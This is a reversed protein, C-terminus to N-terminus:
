ANRTKKHPVAWTALETLAHFYEATQMKEKEGDPHDNSV